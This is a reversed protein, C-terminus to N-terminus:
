YVQMRSINPRGFRYGLGLLIGALGLINPENCVDKIGFNPLFDTLDCIYIKGNNEKKIESTVPVSLNLLDTVASIQKKAEM